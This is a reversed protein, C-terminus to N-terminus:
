KENWLTGWDRSSGHNYREIKQAISKLREIDPQYVTQLEQALPKPLAVKRQAIGLRSVFQSTLDALKSVVRSKPAM